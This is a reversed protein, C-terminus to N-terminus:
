ENWFHGNSTVFFNTGYDYEHYKEAYSFGKGCCLMSGSDLSQNVHGVLMVDGVYDFSLNEPSVNCFGVYCSMPMDGLGFVELSSDVVGQPIDQAFVFQSLCLFCVFLVWRKKM